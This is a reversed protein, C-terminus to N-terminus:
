EMKNWLKKTTIHWESNKGVKIKKVIECWVNHYTILARSYTSFLKKQHQCCHTPFKPPFNNIKQLLFTQEAKKTRKQGENWLEVYLYVVRKIADFSHELYECILTYVYTLIYAHINIRKNICNLPTNIIIYLDAFKINKTYKRM